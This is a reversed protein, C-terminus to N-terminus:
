IPPWSRLAAYIFDDISGGLRANYEARGTIQLRGGGICFLVRDGWDEVAGRDPDAAKQRQDLWTTKHEVQRGATAPMNAQKAVASKGHARDVMIGRCQKRERPRTALHTPDVELGIVRPLEATVIISDDNGIVQVARQERRNGAGERRTSHQDVLGERAAVFAEAPWAIGIEQKAGALQEFGKGRKRDDGEFLSLDRTSTRLDRRIVWNDADRPRRFGTAVTGM